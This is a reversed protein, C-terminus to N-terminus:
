DPKVEVCEGSRCVCKEKGCYKCCKGETTPDGLSCQTECDSATQGACLLAHQVTGAMGQQVMQKCQDASAAAGQYRKNLTDVIKTTCDEINDCPKNLKDNLIDAIRETARAIREQISGLCQCIRDACCQGAAPNAFPGVPGEGSPTYSPFGGGGGPNSTGGSTSM